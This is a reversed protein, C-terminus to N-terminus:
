LCMDALEDRWRPWAQPDIDQHACFFPTAVAAGGRQRSSSCLAGYHIRLWVRYIRRKWRPGRGAVSLSGGLRREGASRHGARKRRRRDEDRLSGSLLGAGRPTCFQDGAGGEETAAVDRGATGLGSNLKTWLAVGRGDLKTVQIGEYYYDQDDVSILTTEGLADCFAAVSDCYFRESGMYTWNIGGEADIAVAAFRDDHLGALLGGNLRSVFDTVELDWDLNLARRWREKGDGNMSVLIWKRQSESGGVEGASGLLVMSGGCDAIGVVNLGPIETTQLLMGGEEIILLESAPLLLGDSAEPDDFTRAVWLVGDTAEGVGSV